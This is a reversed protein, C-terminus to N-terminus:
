PGRAAKTKIGHQKSLAGRPRLTDLRGIEETACALQQRSSPNAEDTSSNQKDCGRDGSGPLFRFEQSICSSASDMDPFSIPCLAQMCSHGTPYCQAALTNALGGVEDEHVVLAEVKM